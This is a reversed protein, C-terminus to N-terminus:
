VMLDLGALVEPGAMLEIEVIKGDVVTFGFVVKPTGGVSWAAGAYGDLTAVRAAKARGCFREAVAAAGHVAPPSGFAM